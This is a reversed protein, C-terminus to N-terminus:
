IFYDEDFQQNKHNRAKTNHSPYFYKVHILINAFMDRTFQNIFFDMM